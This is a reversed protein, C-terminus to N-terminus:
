ISGLIFTSSARVEEASTTGAESPPQLLESVPELPPEEKPTLNPVASASFHCGQSCDSRSLTTGRERLNKPLSVTAILEIIRHLHTADTCFRYYWFNYLM